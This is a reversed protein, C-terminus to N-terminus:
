SQTKSNPCRRASMGSHLTLSLANRIRNYCVHRPDEFQSHKNTQKNEQKDTKKNSVNMKQAEMEGRRKSIASYNQSLNPSVNEPDLFASIIDFVIICLLFHYLGQVGCFDAMPCLCSADQSGINVGLLDDTNELSGVIGLFLAQQCGSFNRFPERQPQFLSSFSRFFSLFM